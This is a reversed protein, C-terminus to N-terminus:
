DTLTVNASSSYSTGEYTATVHLVYTGAPYSAPITISNTSSSNGTSTIGYYLEISFTIDSTIDDGDANTATFTITSSSGASASTPTYSLTVAEEPTDITIAGSSGSTTLIAETSGTNFAVVKGSDSTFYTSPATTGCVTSYGSTFTVPSSATPSTETSIGISSGAISEYINLLVGSEIFINNLEGNVDRNGSVKITGSLSASSGSKLYVAANSWGSSNLVTSNGTISTNRLILTGGGNAIASVGKATIGSFSCDTLAASGGSAINIVAYENPVSSSQRFNISNLRFNQSGTIYLLSDSSTNAYITVPNGYVGAKSGAIATEGSWNIDGIGATETMDSLVYVVNFPSAYTTFNWIAKKLNKFPKTQSGDGSNDDGSPSIYIGVFNFDSETLDSSNKHYTKEAHSTVSQSHAPTLRITAPSETSGNENLSSSTSSDSVVTKTVEYVITSGEPGSVKYDMSGSAGTSFSSLNSTPSALTTGTVSINGSAGIDTAADASDQWGSASAYCTSLTYIETTGDTKPYLRFTTTGAHRSTSGSIDAILDGSSNKLVYNITAASNNSPANIVFEVYDQEDTNTESASITSTPKTLKLEKSPIQVSTSLGLSDTLTLTVMFIPLSTLNDINTVLYYTTASASEGSITSSLGSPSSTQLTWTDGARAAPVGASIDYHHTQGNASVTLQTVDSALPPLDFCIVQRENISSSSDSYMQSVASPSGPATNCKLALTYKSQPSNDDAKYLTLTPSINYDDTGDIDSLLSDSLVLTAKTNSIKTFTCNGAESTSTQNGDSDTSTIVKTEAHAKSGDPFSLDIRLPFDGDNSIDFTVTWDTGSPINVAGDSSIGYSYSTDAPKLTASTVEAIYGYNRLYEEPSSDAIECSSFILAAATLILLSAFQKLSKASKIRM